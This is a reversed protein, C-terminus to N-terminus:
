ADGLFAGGGARVEVAVPVSGCGLLERVAQGTDTGVAIVKRLATSLVVGQAVRALMTRVRERVVDPPILRKAALRETVLVAEPWNESRVVVDRGQLIAAAAASRIGMLYSEDQNLVVERGVTLVLAGREALREVQRRAEPACSGVLVLKSEQHAM